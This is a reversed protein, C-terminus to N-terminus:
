TGEPRQFTGSWTGNEFHDLMTDEVGRLEDKVFEEMEIKIGQLRDDIVDELDGRNVAETLSEEIQEKVEYKVEEIREYLDENIRTEMKGLEVFIEARLDAVMDQLEARQRAASEDYISQIFARMQDRMQDRVAAMATVADTDVETEARVEADPTPSDRRRKKSSAPEGRGPEPASQSPGAVEDYSPLEPASDRSELVASVDQVAKGGQGRFLGSLSAQGAHSTLQGPTSAASCLSMLQIASLADQAVHIVLSTQSALFPINISAQGDLEQTPAPWTLPTIVTGPRNLTFRLCINGRLPHGCLRDIEEDDTENEDQNLSIVQEPEIFFLVYSNGQVDTPLRLKFFATHSVPDLFVHLHCPITTFTRTQKGGNTTKPGEVVAPKGRLDIASPAASQSM